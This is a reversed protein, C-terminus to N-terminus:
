DAPAPGVVLWSTDPAYDWGILEGAQTLSAWTYFRISTGWQSPYGLFFFSMSQSGEAHAADESPHSFDFFPMAGYPAGVQEQSQGAALDTIWLRLDGEPADTDIGVVWDAVDDGTTELVVGYALIQDAAALAVLRPPQAELELTWRRASDSSGVLTIDVWGPAADRRELWSWIDNGEVPPRMPQLAMGGGEPRVPGSWELSSSGGAPDYIDVSNTPGVTDPSVDSWTSGGALLVADPLLTATHGSRPIALQRVTSWTETRPDYVEASAHPGFGGTGGAVLVTGNTLLTATHGVHAERMETPTATWTRSVQDYLQSFHGGGHGGVVLVRGDPLLTATHGDGPSLMNGTASWTGSAPDYFEATGGGAVLVTGDNLLTATHSTRGGQMTAATATWTRTRPDYVEAVAPLPGSEFEGYGGVVLVTGDPLLTATHHSRPAAMEGVSSWTGHVSDYVEASPLTDGNLGQVEPISIGGAVLVRGDPLLTATHGYRPTVMDATVTWTGRSSDYLEASAMEDFSVDHAGGVVLVTGDPLLTATHQSRVEIMAATPRTTADPSETSSPSPTLLPDVWPPKILGSALGIAATITLVFMLTAALLLAPRLSRGRRVERQLISYLRDVFAGDLEAPGDHSALREFLLEDNM